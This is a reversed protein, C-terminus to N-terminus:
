NKSQKINNIVEELMKISTDQLVNSYEVIKNPITAFFESNEELAYKSVILIDVNNAIEKVKDLNKTSEEIIVGQVIGLDILVQKLGIAGTDSICIIGVSSEKPLHKLKNLVKLYPGFNIAYINENNKILKKLYAYHGVTTMVLDYESIKSNSIKGEEIDSLLCGEIDIELENKIDNIYQKLAAHNCEVFLGRITKGNKEKLYISQATELFEKTTFGLSNSINMAEKITSIFKAVDKKQPLELDETVFTGLSQKTVILGEDELDKYARSITHRNINLMSAMERVSPLKSGKELEGNIIQYRLQLAIQENIQLNSNKDIQFNM